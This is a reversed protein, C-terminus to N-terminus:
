PQPAAEAPSGKSVLTLYASGLIAALVSACLIAFKAESQHEPDSFSLLSVFISMTFGIGALMGLGLVQKWGTKRPLSSLGLQVSIWSFATVGLTKGAILGIIIGLGLNSSLGGLMDSTFRINTNALAFVPMILFNVPRSIAHELKELPSTASGINTPITFALIVGAITAHIGSHHIFYWLFIGPLLYAALNTVKLRNLLLLLVLIGGAYGLYAFHLEKTYFVAI